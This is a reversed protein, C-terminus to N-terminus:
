RAKCSKRDFVMQLQEATRDERRMAFVQRQDPDPNNAPHNTQPSEVCASSPARQSVADVEREPAPTSACAALLVVMATVAKM